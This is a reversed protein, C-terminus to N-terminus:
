QQRPPACQLVGRVRTVNGYTASFQQLLTDTISWQRRIQLLHCVHRIAVFWRMRPHVRQRSFLRLRKAQRIAQKAQHLVNCHTDNSDHDNSRPNSSSYVDSHASGGTSGSVNSHTDYVNNVERSASLQDPLNHFINCRHPGSDAPDSVNSHAEFVNSRPTEAEPEPVDIHTQTTTNTQRRQPCVTQRMFAFM